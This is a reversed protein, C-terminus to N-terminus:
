GGSREATRACSTRGREALLETVRPKLGRTGLDTHLSAECSCCSCLADARGATRGDSPGRAVRGELPADRVARGRLSFGAEVGTSVRSPGAAAAQYKFSEPIEFTLHM